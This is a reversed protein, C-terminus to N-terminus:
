SLRFTRKILKWVYIWPRRYIISLEHDLLNNTKSKEDSLMKLNELDRNLSLRENELIILKNQLEEIESSLNKNNYNLNFLKNILIIKNYKYQTKTGSNIVDLLSIVASTSSLSNRIEANNLKKRLEMINNKNTIIFKEFRIALDKDDLFNFKFVLNRNALNEGLPDGGNTVVPVGNGVMDALRLRFSYKNELNDANISVALDASNFINIREDYGVWDKFFITKDTLGLQDSQKKFDDFAGNFRKDKKPYFPNSGGVVTLTALKKVKKSSFIELLNEPNFWPYMGGFWLVNIKSNNNIETVEDNLEPYAPVIIMRNIDFEDLLGMGAIIGLYLEKQEEAAVIIYDSNVLAYNCYEVQEKYFSLVEKDRVSDKSKTLAEVYYPSIADTILIADKPSRDIIEKTLQGFGYSFIILDYASLLKSLKDYDFNFSKINIGMYEDIDPKNIDLVALDVETGANKLACAIRWYRLGTGEVNQIDGTPFTNYSIVLVKKPM